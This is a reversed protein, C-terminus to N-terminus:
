GYIQAPPSQGDIDAQLKDLQTNMGWRLALM